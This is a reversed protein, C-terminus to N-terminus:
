ARGLLKCILRGIKKSKLKEIQGERELRRKRERDLERCKRALKDGAQALKGMLDDCHRQLEEAKTIIQRVSIGVYEEAPFWGVPRLEEMRFSPDRTPLGIWDSLSRVEAEMDGVLKEYQIIRINGFQGALLTYHKLHIDHWEAPTHHINAFFPNHVWHIEPFAEKPRCVHFLFQKSGPSYLASYKSGLFEKFNTSRLGYLASFRFVSAAVAAFSRQIYIYKISPDVESATLLNHDDGDSLADKDYSEGSLIDGLISALVNNGSRQHGKVVVRPLLTTRLSLDNM